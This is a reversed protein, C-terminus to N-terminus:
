GITRKEFLGMIEAVLSSITSFHGQVGFYVNNNPVNPDAEPRVADLAAKADQLVSRLNDIPGSLDDLAQFPATLRILKRSVENLLDRAETFSISDSLKDLRQVIETLEITITQIKVTRGAEGAALKAARAEKFAGISFAVGVLGLALNIWFDVTQFFPPALLQKLSEIEADTM